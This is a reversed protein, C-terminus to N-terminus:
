RRRETEEGGDRQRKRKIKEEKDRKRLRKGDM